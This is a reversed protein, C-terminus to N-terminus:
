VELLNFTYYDIPYHMDFSPIQHANSTGRRDMMPELLMAEAIQVTPSSLVRCLFMKDFKTSTRVFLKQGFVLIALNYIYTKWIFQLFYM